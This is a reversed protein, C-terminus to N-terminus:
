WFAGSSFGGPPVRGVRSVPANNVQGPACSKPADAGNTEINGVKTAADSSESPQVGTAADPVQNVATIVAPKTEASVSDNELSPTISEARVEMDGVSNNVTVSASNMPEPLPMEPQEQVKRDESVHTEKTTESDPKVPIHAGFIDSTGGGPPRLVKSSNRAGPELGSFTRVTNSM